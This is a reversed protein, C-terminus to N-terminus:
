SAWSFLDLNRKALKTEALTKRRPLQREPKVSGRSLPVANLRKRSRLSPDLSSNQLLTPLYIPLAEFSEGRARRFLLQGCNDGHPTVAYYGSTRAGCAALPVLGSAVLGRGPEHLLAEQLLREAPHIVLTLNNILTSVDSSLRLKAGLLPQQELTELLWEPMQEPLNLLLRARGAASLTHGSGTEGAGKGQM